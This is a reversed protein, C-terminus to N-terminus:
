SEVCANWKTLLEKYAKNITCSDYKNKYALVCARISDTDCDKIKSHCREISRVAEMRCEISRTFPEPNSSVAKVACNIQEETLNGSRNERECSDWDTYCENPLDKCVMSEPNSLCTCNVRIITDMGETQYTELADRLEQIKDGEDTTTVLCGGTGVSAIALFLVLTVTSKKM